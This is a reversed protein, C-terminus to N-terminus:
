GPLMLEADLSSTDKLYNEDVTGLREESKIEMDGHGINLQSEMCRESCHPYTEHASSAGCKASDAFTWRPTYDGKKNIPIGEKKMYDRRFRGLRGHTSAHAGGEACVCPAQGAKYKGHGKGRNPGFQSAPVLHEPTQPPCCAGDSGKDYSVMACQLANLCPNDRIEGAYQELAINVVANATDRDASGTPLSDRREKAADVASSDPCKAKEKRPNCEREIAAQENECDSKRILAMRDLYVIPPTNSPLSRHNHTTLDLHRVVNKGEVKVDMSWSNFYVKGRNTSTIVGKKPACGAEDGISKKFYSRNKLMVEKGSIKVSKSGRTTDRALGTNPYPIPVGPPTAPTQPPTFCVDPFACISKGAAAKCSVERGNAFVNNAM